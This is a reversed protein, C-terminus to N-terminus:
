KKSVAKDAKSENENAKRILDDVLLASAYNELTKVAYAIARRLRVIYWYEFVVVILLVIIFVNYVM